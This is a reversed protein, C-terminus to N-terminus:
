HVKRDHFKAFWAHARQWETVQVDRPRSSPTPGRMPLNDLNRAAAPNASEASAITEFVM